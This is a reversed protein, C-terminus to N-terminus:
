PTIMKGGLSGTVLEPGKPRSLVFATTAGGAVVVGVGTWFWWAKYFPAGADAVPAPSPAAAPASVLVPSAPPPAVPLAPAEPVAELAVTVAQAMGAVVVLERRAGVFGPASVEVVHRGAALKQARGPSAGGRGDVVILLSKSAAARAPQVTITVDALLAKMEGIADAVERRQEPTVRRDAATEDLYTTFTAIADTYRFLSRQCLGIDYLIVPERSGARAAEFEVLAADFNRDEFLVVGQRFHRRSADEPAPPTTAQARASSAVSVVAGCFALAALAVTAVRSPIV